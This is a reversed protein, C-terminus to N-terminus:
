HEQACGHSSLIQVRLFYQCRLENSQAYDAFVAFLLATCEPPTASTATQFHVIQGNGQRRMEEKQVTGVQRCLKMKLSDPLHQTDSTFNPEKWQKRKITSRRRMKMNQHLLQCKIAKGCLDPANRVLKLSSAILHQNDFRELNPLSDSGNTM